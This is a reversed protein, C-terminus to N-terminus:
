DCHECHKYKLRRRQSVHSFNILRWEGWSFDLRARESTIVDRAVKSFIKLIADSSAPTMLRRGTTIVVLYNWRALAIWRDVLLRLNGGDPRTSATHIGCSHGFTRGKEHVHTSRSFYLNFHFIFIRAQALRLRPIRRKRISCMTNLSAYLVSFYLYHVRVRARRGKERARVVFITGKIRLFFFMSFFSRLWLFIRFHFSSSTCHRGADLIIRLM